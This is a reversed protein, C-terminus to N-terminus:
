NQSSHILTTRIIQGSANVIQAAAMVMFIISKITASTDISGVRKMIQKIVKGDVMSIMLKIIVDMEMINIILKVIMDMDVTNAILKVMDMEVMNIILRFIMDIDVMNVILMNKDMKVMNIMLRSIMDMDVMNAILKIM